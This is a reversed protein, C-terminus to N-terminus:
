LAVPRLGAWRRVSFSRTGPERVIPDSLTLQSVEEFASALIPADLSRATAALRRLGPPGSRLEAIHKNTRIPGLEDMIDDLANALRLHVASPQRELMAPEIELLSVHRINYYEGILNAIPAGVRDRVYSLKQPRTWTGFPFRGFELASHIMAAGILDPADSDWAAISATGVLHVIFPKWNARVLDYSISVGLKYQDHLTAVAASTWGKTGLQRYLAFAHGAIERM